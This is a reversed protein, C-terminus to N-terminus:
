KIKSGKHSKATSSACDYIKGNYKNWLHGISGSRFLASGNWIEVTVGAGACMVYFCWSFFVCNGSRRNWCKAMATKNLTKIDGGPWNYYMPLHYKFGGTGGRKLWNYISTVTKSETSKKLSEGVAVIKKEIESSANYNSAFAKNEPPDKYEEGPPELKDNVAMVVEKESIEVSEVYVIKDKDVLPPSLQHCYGDIIGPMPPIKLTMNKKPGKSQKFENKLDNAMQKKKEIASLKSTTSSSSSSSGPTLYVNRPWKDKGKVGDYDADCNTCNIEGELATKGGKKGIARLVGSKKCNPCYNKWTKAPQLRYDKNENPFMKVTLSEKDVEWEVGSCVTYGKYQTPVCGGM